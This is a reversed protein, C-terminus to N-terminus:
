NKEAEEEREKREKNKREREKAKKKEGEEIRRKSRRKWKEERQPAPEPEGEVILSVDFSTGGMDIGILNPRGTQRSLEACAIAGGVPGSVLQFVPAKSTEAVSGVGGNMTMMWLTGGFGAYAGCDGINRARLGTIRGDERWRHLPFDPDGRCALVLRTGTGSGRAAHALRALEDPDADNCDDVVIAPAASLSQLAEILRRPGTAATVAGAFPSDAVATTVSALVRHWFGERDGGAVLATRTPRDAAWSALLASKGWGAPASVV